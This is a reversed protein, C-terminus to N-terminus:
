RLENRREYPIELHDGVRTMWLQADAFGKKIDAMSQLVGSNQSYGNLLQKIADIDKTAKDMGESVKDSVEKENQRMAHVERWVFIGITVILAPSLFPEWRMLGVADGDAGLLFLAAALGGVIRLLKM